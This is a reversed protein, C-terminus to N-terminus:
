AEESDGMLDKLEERLQRTQNEATDEGAEKVANRLKAMIDIDSGGEKTSRKRVKMMIPARTMEGVIIAEGKNLGPLDELLTQSLRESSNAVANQDQANSIRMIVQSNCQSLTDSHIKCPRQTILTLFVGFKRGEAAIKNVLRKSYTSGQAPVFRHAEELFAFVPYEYKGSSVTDYVDELIRSTIYDSVEDILGSLDVVSLHKPKLMADISTSANSFVRMKAVRSLYKAADKAGKIVVPTIGQVPGWQDASEIINMLDQPQYVDMQTELYSIAAALGERINAFNQGIKSIFCIEDLSLDSFCIEYPEVGGVEDSTYRGTSAPNRFVEIRDSLDHKKGESTRSLFVYDAHPDLVIVTAGKQLLEEMIIGSLYTKGSGTQAIIALHRRFGKISLSVPVESRTILHGVNIAEDQPYSYFRELLEAPAIYVPKGPIVARKPQQIDGSETLFGLIHAMGWVKQDALGAEIIKEIIGFDLEKTLAQSASIIREIQAVVEVTTPKGDIIEESDTFIYEWRSPMEGPRSSFLFETSSAEGVIVGIDRHISSM